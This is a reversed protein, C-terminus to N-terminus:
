EVNTDTHRHTDIHTKAQTDIDGLLMGVCEQGRHNIHQLLSTNYFHSSHTRDFHIIHESLPKGRTRVHELM